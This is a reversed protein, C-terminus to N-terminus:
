QPNPPRPNPHPTRVAPALPPFGSVATRPQYRLPQFSRVAGEDSRKAAVKERSPLLLFIYINTIQHPM